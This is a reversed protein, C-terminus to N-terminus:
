NPNDQGEDTKARASMETNRHNSSINSAWQPFDPKTPTAKGSSNYNNLTKGRRVLRVLKFVGM